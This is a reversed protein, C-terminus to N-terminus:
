AETLLTPRGHIMEVFRPIYLDPWRSLSTGDVSDAGLAQFRRYRGLTNVRGAHVWQGRLRADIAVRRAVPGLKFADDGGLFVADADEPVAELGNQAVYAVPLGHERIRPEWEAYLADTAAADQVVDPCAVFRCTAHHPAVRELMRLFAAADFGVFAGNDAAWPLQPEIDVRNRTQPTVLRGLAGTRAYRAVTPSAGSVFAIV